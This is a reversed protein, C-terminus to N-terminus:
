LKVGAEKLVRQSASVLVARMFKQQSLGAVFAADKVLSRDDDLMHVLVKAPGIEPVDKISVMFDTVRDDM